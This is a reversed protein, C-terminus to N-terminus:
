ISKKINVIIKGSYNGYNEGEPIKARISISKKEGSDLFIIEDFTLFKKIKGNAKFEFIIPFDYSNEITLNRSSSLGPYLTGFTLATQNLDFSAVEGVKLTTIIEKRELTIRSNVLVELFIATIILISIYLYFKNKKNLM